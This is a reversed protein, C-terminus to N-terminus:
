TLKNFYSTKSSTTIYGSSGGGGGSAYGNTSSTSGGGGGDGGGMGSGGTAATGANGGNGGPSINGLTANQISKTATGGAAGDSAGSNAAAGGSGTLYRATYGSAGNGELLYGQGGAGGGGVCRPDYNGWIGANGGNNYSPTSTSGSYSNNKTVRLAGAGGGGGGYGPFFAVIDGPVVNLTTNVTSGSYGTTGNGGDRVGSQATQGAGGSGGSAGSYVLGNKLITSMGGDGAKAITLTGSGDFNTRAGGSGGGGGGKLTMSFSEKGLSTYYTGYQLNLVNSVINWARNTMFRNYMSKFTNVSCIQKNNGIAAPLDLTADFGVKLMRGLIRYAAQVSIPRNTYTDPNNYWSKVVDIPVKSKTSIYKLASITNVAKSSLAFAPSGSAETYFKGQVTEYMGLKNDSNRYCPVYDRVLTNGEYIKFTYICGYFFEAASNQWNGAFLYADYSSTTATTYPMSYTTGNLIFGKTANLECDYKTGMTITAGLPDKKNGGICGYTHGDKHIGVYFADTSNHETRAGFVAAYTQPLSSVKMTWVYRTTNTKHKYGLNIWEGGYGELYETQTYGSPLTAM